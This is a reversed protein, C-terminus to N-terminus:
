PNEAEYRRIGEATEEYLAAIEALKEKVEKDTMKRDNGPRFEETIESSAKALRTLGLNGCNGKAAHAADFLTGPDMTEGASILAEMVGSKTLKRIHKDVLKEVRLVRLATELDEGIGSYLERLTM